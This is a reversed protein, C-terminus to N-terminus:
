TLLASMSPYRSFIKRAESVFRRYMDIASAEDVTPTLLDPFEMLLEQDSRSAFLQMFEAIDYLNRRADDDPPLTKPSMKFVDRNYLTPDNGNTEIAIRRM